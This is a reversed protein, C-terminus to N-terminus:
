VVNLHSYNLKQWPSGVCGHFINRLANEVQVLRLVDINYVIHLDRGKLELSQKWEETV